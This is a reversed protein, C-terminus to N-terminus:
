WRIKKLYALRNQLKRYLDCNNYSNTFSIDGIKCDKPLNDYLLQNYKKIVFEVLIYTIDDTIEYNLINDKYQLIINISLDLISENIDDNFYDIVAKKIEDFM